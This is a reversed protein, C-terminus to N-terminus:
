YTAKLALLRDARDTFLGDVGLEILREMEAPDNVTWPHVWLGHRHAAAVFTADVDRHNPGVGIAYSAIEKLGNEIQGALDGQEVLQVRPLAPALARMKELSDRSFSQIVVPAMKDISKADTGGPDNAQVQAAPKGPDPEWSQSEDLFGFQRLEAVLKEEMGPMEDPHKTEIYYRTTRGYRSLLESLTIISQGAFAADFWSGFDCRRLQALSKERARGSCHPEPGRATRELSDDHLIVLEGDASMHLDQEIYDAGIEIARDYAEWTHEPALGSLGRHAIVKIPASPPKRDTSPVACSISLLVLAGCIPRLDV